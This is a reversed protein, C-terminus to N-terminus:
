TMSELSQMADIFKYMFREEQETTESPFALMAESIHSIHGASFVKFGMIEPIVLANELVGQDILLIAKSLDVKLGTETQVDRLAQGIIEVIKTREIM